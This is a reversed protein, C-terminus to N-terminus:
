ADATSCKKMFDVATSTLHPGERQGVKEVEKRDHPKVTKILYSVYFKPRLKLGTGFQTRKIAVLEGKKIYTYNNANKLSSPRVRTQIKWSRIWFSPTLSIMKRKPLPKIRMLIVQKLVM